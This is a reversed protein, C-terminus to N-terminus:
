ASWARLNISPPMLAVRSQWAGARVAARNCLVAEQDEKTVMPDVGPARVGEVEKILSAM